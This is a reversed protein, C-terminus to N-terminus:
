IIDILDDGLLKQEDIFIDRSTEIHYFEYYHPDMLELLKLTVLVTKNPHITLEFTLKEYTRSMEM